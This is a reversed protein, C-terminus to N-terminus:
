TILHVHQVVFFNRFSSDTSSFPLNRRPISRSLIKQDTLLPQQILGFQLPGVDYSLSLGCSNILCKRQHFECLLGQSVRSHLIVGRGTIRVERLYTGPLWGEETINSIQPGIMNKLDLLSDETSDDAGHFKQYFERMHNPDVCGQSNKTISDEGKTPLSLVFVSCFRLDDHV